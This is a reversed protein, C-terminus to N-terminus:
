VSQPVNEAQRAACDVCRRALEALSVDVEVVGVPVAHVFTLPTAHNYGRLGMERAIADHYSAIKSTDILGNRIYGELRKGSLITKELM